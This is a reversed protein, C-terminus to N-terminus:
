VRSGVLIDELSDSKYYEYFEEPYSSIEQNPGIWEMVVKLFFREDYGNDKGTDELLFAIPPECITVVHSQVELNAKAQKTLDLWEERTIKTWTEETV